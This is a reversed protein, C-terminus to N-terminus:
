PTVERPNRMGAELGSKLTAQVERAGLGIARAVATLTQEVETRDLLGVALLQGLSFASKNLQNNRAGVPTRALIDLENHLAAQGYANGVWRPTVPEVVPPSIIEILWDPPTVPEIFPDTQWEYRRGSPHISPPAVVYGGDGKLDMGPRVFGRVGEGPHRYFIHLGNGTLSIPTTCEETLEESGDLDLVIIGSVAGTVIGINADPCMQWWRIVEDETPLRSQYPQWTRKPRGYRDLILHGDLGARIPLLQFHPRKRHPQLPIVSWGHRVYSLATEALQNM